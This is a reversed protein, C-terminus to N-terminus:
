GCPGTLAVLTAELEYVKEVFGLSSEGLMLFREHLQLLKSTKKRTSCASKPLCCIIYLCVEVSHTGKCLFQWILVKFKIPTGSQWDYFLTLLALLSMGSFSQTPQLSALILIGDKEYKFTIFAANFVNIESLWTQNKM